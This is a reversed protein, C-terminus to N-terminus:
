ASARSESDGSGGEGAARGLLKARRGRWMYASCVKEAETFPQFAGPATAGARPPQQQTSTRARMAQMLGTMVSAQLAEAGAGSDQNATVASDETVRTLTEVATSVSAGAARPESILPAEQVPSVSAGAARPESNLQAEQVTTVSAAEAAALQPESNLLAV